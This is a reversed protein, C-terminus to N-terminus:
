QGLIQPIEEIVEPCIGIGVDNFFRLYSIEKKDNIVELYYFGKGLCYAEPSVDITIYNDGFTLPQVPYNTQDKIKIDMSNYINFKLTSADYEQNFIFKIKGNVMTHYYGDLEYKLHAFIDSNASTCGFSSVFDNFGTLKQNIITSPKWKLSTYNTSEFISTPNLNQSVRFTSITGNEIRQILIPINPVYNKINMHFGVGSTNPTFTCFSSGNSSFILNPLNPDFIPSGLTPAVTLSLINNNHLGSTKPTFILWGSTNHELKSSTISRGPLVDSVTNQGIADAGNIANSTIRVSSEWNMNLGAYVIRDIPYTNIGITVSGKLRYFGIPLNTFLSQNSVTGIYPNILDDYKYLKIDSATVPNGYVDKIPYPVSLVVSSKGCSNSALSYNFSFPQKKLFLATIDSKVNGNGFGVGGKLTYEIPLVITKIVKGRVVYDLNGENQKLFIEMDKSTIEYASSLIGNEVTYIKGEKVSYGYKLNNEDQLTSTTELLGFFQTENEQRVISKLSGNTQNSMFIDIEAKSNSGTSRLTTGSVVLNIPSTLTISAQLAVKKSLIRIGRSDFVATYYEGMELNEFQYKTQPFQGRFFSISDIPITDGFITDKIYRYTETLDVIPNESIFYHFPGVKDAIASIDIDISGVGAEDSFSAKAKCKISVIVVESNASSNGKSVVARFYTTATIAETTFIASTAGIINVFSVNDTSSQWQLTSGTIQGDIMLTTTEQSCIETETASVTGTANPPALFKIKVNLVNSAKSCTICSSPFSADSYDRKVRSTAMGTTYEFTPYNNGYSGDKNEFLFELNSIGDYDFVNTFPIEKWGTGNYTITGDFVLTFGATGSYTADTYGTATTHRVYIKQKNTVFNVPSNTVKFSVSAIKGASGVEEKTYLVNSFSYNYYTNFPYKETVSTGTGISSTTMFSEDATITVVNSYNSCGLTTVTRVYLPLLTMPITCTAATQNPIVKFTINDTSQEWQITGTPAQGSLSFTVNNGVLAKSVKSSVIGGNISCPAFKMQINLVNQFKLTSSTIATPFSNDSYDRKVRYDPMGTQGRFNPHNDSWTGDRNEFLFELDDVGNYEFFNQLVIEKWGTGNYTISGDYVLTFGATTPYAVDSYESTTTHRVYIKQNDMTENVPSNDVYFSVRSLKGTSNIESAKYLMAAWSFNYYGNFPYKDFVDTGAGINTTTLSSIDVNITVTNTTAICGASSTVIARFYSTQMLNNALYTLNNAETINKFAINDTSSQWQTTAGSAQGALSLTSSNGIVLSTLSASITGTNFLCPKVTIQINPRSSLISASATNTTPFTYDSYDRKTRYIGSGTTTTRFNPFGSTWSGDNNEFLFELNGTGNYSFPKDLAITNWGSGNFTISGDYVLTFGESGTYNSSSYTTSTTHRVYIKQRDMVFNVPANDVYFAISELNGASSNIESGLYISNSWGYNYYGNIPYSYTITTGTGIITTQANLTTFFAIFLVVLGAFRLLRKM